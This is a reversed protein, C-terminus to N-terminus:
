AVRSPTKQRTLAAFTWGGLAGTAVLALTGSLFRTAGILTIPVWANMILIATLIAVGGALMYLFTRGSPWLRVLLAAVLFAVVFGGASIGALMPAFGSLDQLTTQLRIGLPVPAGVAAIAALNFQTQVISGAAATVASAVLWAILLKLFRM